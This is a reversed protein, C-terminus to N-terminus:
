EFFVMKSRSGFEPAGQLMSVAAAPFAGGGAPSGWRRVDRTVMRAGMPRRRPGWSRRQRQAIRWESGDGGHGSPRPSFTSSTFWDVGVICSGQKEGHCARNGDAPGACRHLLHILVCVQNKSCFLQSDSGTGLGTNQRLLAPAVAQSPPPLHSRYRRVSHELHSVCLCIYPRSTIIKIEDAKCRTSRTNGRFFSSLVHHKHKCNLLQV